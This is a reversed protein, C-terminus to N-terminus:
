RFVSRFHDGQAQSRRTRSCLRAGCQGHRTGFRCASLRRCGDRVGPLRRERHRLCSCVRFRELCRRPDRQCKDASDQGMVAAHIVHRAGLRGGNTVVSQGVPVPGQGIADIEISVGGAHKIAGAVGGGMWSHNNAANVVADTEMRTIDGEVVHFAVGGVSPEM